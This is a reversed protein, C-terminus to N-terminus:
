CIVCCCGTVDGTSGVLGDADAGDGLLGGAGANRSNAGSGSHKHHDKKDEPRVSVNIPTPHTKFVPVDAETLTKSDPSLIGKGMCILRIKHGGSCEPMDKFLQQKDTIAYNNPSFSRTQPFKIVDCCTLFFSM